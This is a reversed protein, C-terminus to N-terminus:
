RLARHRAVPRRGSTADETFSVGHKRLNAAPKRADWAFNCHWEPM